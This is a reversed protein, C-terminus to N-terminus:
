ETWWHWWRKVTMFALPTTIMVTGALIAIAVPQGGQAVSRQTGVASPRAKLQQELEAVRAHLQELTELDQGSSAKTDRPPTM